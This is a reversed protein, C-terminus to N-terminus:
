ARKMNGLFLVLQSAIFGVLVGLAPLKLVLFGVSFMVVTLCWREAVCRYAKRLNLAADAKAERAAMILHRRQLLTNAVGIAVGFMTALAVSLGQWLFAGFGLAVLTVVQIKFLLNIPQVRALRDM